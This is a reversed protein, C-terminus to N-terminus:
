LWFPSLEYDKVLYGSLAIGNNENSRRLADSDFMM